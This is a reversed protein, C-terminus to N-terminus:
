GREIFSFPSAELFHAYNGVETNEAKIFKTHTICVELLDILHEVKFTEDVLRDVVDIQFCDDQESPYKIAEFVNFTVQEDQVRLILKGKQVDILTGGITLFPRGM